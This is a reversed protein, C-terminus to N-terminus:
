PEIAEEIFQEGELRWARMEKLGDGAVSAILYCWGPWAAARDTESPRAPHDPHSHWIGVIDLGLARAERDAGLFDGPDLEYRDRAREAILNRAQMVRAVECVGDRQRGILLGCAENPYGAVAAEALRERLAQPLMVTNPM